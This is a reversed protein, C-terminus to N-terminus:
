TTPVIATTAQLQREDRSQQCLPGSSATGLLDDARALCRKLFAIVPNPQQGSPEDIRLLGRARAERLVQVVVDALPEGHDRRRDVPEFVEDPSIWFALVCCSKAM